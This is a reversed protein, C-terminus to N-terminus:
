STATENLTFIITSGSMTVSVDVDVDAVAVTTTIVLVYSGFAVGVLVPSEVDDHNEPFSRIFHFPM